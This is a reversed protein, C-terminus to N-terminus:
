RSRLQGPWPRLALEAIEPRGRIRGRPHLAAAGGRHRPAPDVDRVRAPCAGLESFWLGDYALTALRDAVPRKFALLEKSLTLGELAAHAQHLVVAAPAEYIERSKIGVLRDEVHDIRGIGHSGALANLHEVLEVGSMRQGDISM